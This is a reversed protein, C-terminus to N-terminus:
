RQIQTNFLDVENLIIKYIEQSTINGKLFPFIYEDPVYSCDCKNITTEHSSLCEPCIWTKSLAAEKQFFIYTMDAPGKQQFEITPIFYKLILYSIGSLAVSVWWPLFALPDLISENRKAM